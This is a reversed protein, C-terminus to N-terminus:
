QKLFSRHIQRRDLDVELTYTGAPISKLSLIQKYEEATKSFNFTQIVIGNLNMLRIQGKGKAYGKLDIQISDTVPNPYLVLNLMEAAPQIATLLPGDVIVTVKRTLNGGKAEAFYTGGNAPATLENGEVAGAPFTWTVQKKSDYGLENLVWAGLTTKEGAKLWVTDPWVSLRQLQPAVVMVEASASLTGLQATVVKKGESEPATFHLARNPLVKGDTGSWQAELLGTGFGNEDLGYARLEVSDGPRLYVTNPVVVISSLTKGTPDPTAELVAAETFTWKGDNDYAKAFIPHIGANPNQWIFSFVNGQKATTEGLKATNDWFEVKVIIGDADTAEAQLVVERLSIKGHGHSVIHVKPRNLHPNGMLEMLGEFKPTRLNDLDEVVGWAGYRNYASQASFHVYLDGSNDYWNRQLGLIDQKILPHRNAMIMNTTGKTDGVRWSPSGEYATMKLGFKSALAAIGKLAGQGAKDFLLAYIMAAEEVSAANTITSGDQLADTGQGHYTTIALGYFYSDPTGYNAKFWDLITEYQAYLTPWIGLAVRINKNVSAEGYVTKFLTSLEMTRRAYWRRGMVREDTTAPKNLLSAPNKRIEDKAADIAYQYQKFGPNWVENSLEVYVTLHPLLKAKLFAAFQKIYDDSAAVPLCVWADSGTLNCLDAFHEWAIPPQNEETYLRGAAKPLPRDKWEIQTPYAPNLNNLETFVHSRLPSFLGMYNLYKASFSQNTVSSFGPRILRINRAGNLTNTFNVALVGRRHPYVLEATTLNAAADYHQNKIEIGPSDASASLTAKGEFRLQYTGREDTTYAAPDDISNQWEAVPRNDFFFAKFDEAPWGEADLKCAATGNPLQFSRMGSVVDPFNKSKAFGSVNIGIRKTQGWSASTLFIVIFLTNLFLKMACRNLFTSMLDNKLFV